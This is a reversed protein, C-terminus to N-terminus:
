GEAKFVRAELIFGVTMAADVPRNGLFMMVLFVDDSDMGEAFMVLAQTADVPMVRLVAVREAHLVYKSEDSPLGDESEHPQYAFGDPTAAFAYRTGDMMALGLVRGVTRAVTLPDASVWGDGFHDEGFSHLSGDAARVTWGTPWGDGQWTSWDKGLIQSVRGDAHFITWDADSLSRQVVTDGWQDHQISWSTLSDPRSQRQSAALRLMEVAGDLWGFNGAYDFFTLAIQAAGELRSAIDAPLLDPQRLEATAADWATLLTPEDGTRLFEALHQLSPTTSAAPNGGGWEREPPIPAPSAEPETSVGPEPGHGPTGRQRSLARGRITWGHGLYDKSLTLKSGDPARVTWDDDFINKSLTGKSGDAFRITWAGGVLDKSLTAKTGDPLWLTFDSDLLNKQVDIERGGGADISIGTGFFQNGILKAKKDEGWSVLRVKKEEDWRVPEIELDEGWSVLRVKIDEGSEVIKVRIRQSM